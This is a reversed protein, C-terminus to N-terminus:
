LCNQVAFMPFILFLFSLFISSLTVFTSKRLNWAEAETDNLDASKQTAARRPDTQCRRGMKLPWYTWPFVDQGKFTPGIHQGSIDTIFWGVGHFLGSSRLANFFVEKIQGSIAWCVHNGCVWLENIWAAIGFHKCYDNKICCCSNKHSFPFLQIHSIICCFLVYVLNVCILPKM